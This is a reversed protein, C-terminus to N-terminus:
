SHKSTTLIVKVNTRSILSLYNIENFCTRYSVCTHGEVMSAESLSVLASTNSNHKFKYYMSFSNHDYLGSNSIKPDLIAIQNTSQSYSHEDEQLTTTPRLDNVETALKHVAM